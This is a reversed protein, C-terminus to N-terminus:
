ATKSVQEIDINLIPYAGGFSWVTSDFGKNIFNEANACEEANLSKSTSKIAPGFPNGQQEKQLSGGNSSNFVCDTMIGGNRRSKIGDQRNTMTDFVLGFWDFVDKSTVNLYDTCTDLHKYGDGVFTVNVFSTKITANKAFRKALGAMESGTLEATTYVNTVTGKEFDVVIGAVNTGSIANTSFSSTIALTSNAESDIACAIGGANYANIKSNSGSNVVSGGYNVYCVIGGARTNQNTNGLDIVANTYAGDILGETVGAIGGVNHQTEANATINGDFKADVVKGYNYGVIGGVCATTDNEINITANSEVNRLTASNSNVGVVSGIIGSSTVVNIKSDGIVACDQVLGNNTGAIAGTKSVENLAIAADVTVNNLTLGVVQADRGIVGFFGANADVNEIVVNSITYYVGEVSNVIIKGTFPNEATGIPEWPTTLEINNNIVYTGALNAKINRLQAENTIVVQASPDVDYIMDAVVQADQDNTRLVPLGGNVHSDIMWVNEFDWSTPLSNGYYTIYPAKTVEDDVEVIADQSRVAETIDAETPMSTMFDSSMAFYRQMFDDQGSIATFGQTTSYYNGYVRNEGVLDNLITTGNPNTNTYIIMGMKDSLLSSDDQQAVTMVSYTNIVYSKANNDAYVRNAIGAMTATDSLPMMIGKTYANIITGNHNTAVIGGMLSNGSITGVYSVRSIRGQNSGAIGGVSGTETYIASDMVNIMELTGRNTGVVVGLNDSDKGTIGAHSFNLNKILATKATEAFLGAEAIEFDEAPFGEAPVGQEDAQYDMITLNYITHGDGDFVGAFASGMAIPAWRKYAGLDIDAVLKYNANLSYAETGIKTLDTANTVFYPNSETGDGIYVTCNQNNFDEKSTNLTLTTSGAMLASFTFVVSGDEKSEKNTLELVEQDGIVVDVTTGEQADKREVTITFQEGKNTNVVSENLTIVENVRSLYYVTMGCTVAIVVIALFIMFKGFWNM